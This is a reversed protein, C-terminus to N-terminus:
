LNDEQVLDLNLFKAEGDALKAQESAFHQTEPLESNEMAAQYSPFEVIVFYRNKKERDSCLLSRTASRKGATAAMWEEDLKRLEDIKSTEFEIIQVFKAM